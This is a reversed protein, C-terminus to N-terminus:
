SIHFQKKLIEAFAVTNQGVNEPNWFACYNRGINVGNLTVTVRKIARGVDKEPTVEDLPFIGEGSLVMKRAEDLSDAFRFSGRFGIIDRYYTREEEQQEKSAILICPINKLDRINVSELRAIPDNAAVAISMTTQALILNVYRGSFARRQDNMILDATQNLLWQHLDEHNGTLIKLQVMPFNEAFSVVAREFEGGAYSSLCAVTLKSEDQRAMRTTDRCMRDLDALLVTGREYFLQGAPTVDFGRTRRDLLRFGLEKELLQVQQSINPQSIGCNKAAESFSGAEVVALYYRIQRLEM